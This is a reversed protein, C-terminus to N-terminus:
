VRSLLRVDFFIIKISLLGNEVSAKSKGLVFGTFLNKDCSTRLIWASTKGKTLTTLDLRQFEVTVQLEALAPAALNASAFLCYISPILLLVVHLQESERQFKTSVNYKIPKKM